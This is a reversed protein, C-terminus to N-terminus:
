FCSSRHVTCETVQRQLTVLFVRRNIFFVSHNDLVADTGPGAHTCSMLFDAVASNADELIIALVHIPSTSLLNLM